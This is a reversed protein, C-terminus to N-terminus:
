LSSCICVYVYMYVYFFVYMYVCGYTYVLLLYSSPTIQLSLSASGQALPATQRSPATTATLRQEKFIMRPRTGLQAESLVVFLRGDEEKSTTRALM